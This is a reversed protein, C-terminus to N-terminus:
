GGGTKLIEAKFKVACDPCISHSFTAQSHAHVYQEVTQWYGKDARVNKCWACIPIMGSLAKVEVMAAQLEAILKEREIEYQKHRSVDRFIGLFGTSNGAQDSLPTVVLLSTFRSGDKRIFTWEGEDIQDFEIKIAVVEFTPRVPHGFKKSLKEAREAIESADRWLMPTTKGVIEQASYGLLQEAAPNFTQVIGKLDTSVIGFDASNLISKQLLLSQQLKAEARHRHRLERSAMLNAIVLLLTALVSGFVLLRAANDSDAQETADRVQLLTQEELSFAKVIDRANGFVRRSEGNIDTKSVGVFGQQRYIAIVREDYSFVGNMASELDKLRRQQVPNDRTLEVLQDFEQPELKACSEYSTLANTDGLTVYGRAGRQIDILNDEFAQAGLIVQFTHNRWYTASKLEAMNVASVFAIMAMLTVSGTVPLWRLFNFNEALAAQWSWVLLGGGLLLFALATNIAMRSYAGWGYAADIGFAYGFLAVCAIVGVICALLGPGALRRSRLQKINVLLIGTGIFIFCVAALPSMRGSYTTAVEFYPKYFLEDISFDRGTVYQLLTLLTFIIVVGSLWPAIKARSTTLLFLGAGSLVFCLATNYQMPASDPLMQLVARWHSYWSAIILLGFLGVASAALRPFHRFLPSEAIKKIFSQEPM